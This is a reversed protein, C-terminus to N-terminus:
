SPLEQQWLGMDLGREFVDIKTTTPQCVVGPDSTWYYSVLAWGGWQTGNFTKRWLLSNGGLVFVDLKGATCSTAAPGSSLSGGLSEWAAWSTGTWSRHWLQDDVGRIFLDIANTGPQCVAAPDGTVHGGVLTWPGWSTGNFTKRWPVGDGGLVFVDLKGVACSVVAPGSSLSGGLSEWAAWSSGSWRRHWLQNDVGRLFLDVVNTGPQCVTAPDGTVHGGVLTWPGWSTGDFTKRWPVGGGGVVFTDLRGAGCSSAAAGSSLSGGLKVFPIAANSSQTDVGFSNHATVTFSYEVGNKLGTFTHSSVTGPVDLVMNGPQGVVHYSDIPAYCSRGSWKVTVSGDGGVAVPDPLHPPSPLASAYGQALTLYYTWNWYPGPDTHHSEGGFKTPDRPDPVESHGIIHQRNMPVGWRSCISASIQASAQYMATTYWGPTWAFGEHEIGIARTNYDWNGAHWAIDRELVMQTVEGLDSVVYHASAQAATNQFWQIAAGYSGETDHIIIMDVPYDHARDAVSFNSISAPVWTAGPYDTSTANAVGPVAVSAAPLAQSALTIREGSSTTRTAGLRMATFVQAAVQDGQTSAVAPQWSALDAGNAHASALLAAGADLNAATDRSIQLASRGSLAAAQGIQSPMINMPGVGGGAGRQTMVEWHTNVYAIAQILPLPVGRAYAAANM